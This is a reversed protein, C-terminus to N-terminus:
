ASSHRQLMLGDQQGTQGYGDRAVHSLRRVATRMRWKSGRRHKRGRPRSGTGSGVSRTRMFRLLTDMCGLSFQVRAPRGSAIPEACAGLPSRLHRAGGPDVAGPPGGVVLGWSHFTPSPRGNGRRCPANRRIAAGICSWMDGRDWDPAHSSVPVSSLSSLRRRCDRHRSCVTLRCDGLRPIGVRAM